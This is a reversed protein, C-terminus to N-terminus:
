RASCDVRVLPALPLRGSGHVRRSQSRRPVQVLYTGACPGTISPSRFTDNGDNSITLEAQKVYTDELSINGFTLNGGLRVIADFFAAPRARHNLQLRQRAPRHHHEHRRRSGEYANRTM